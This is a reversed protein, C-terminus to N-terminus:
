KKTLTVDDILLKDAANICIFLQYTDAEKIDFNLTYAEWKKNDITEIKPTGAVNVDNTRSSANEDKKTFSVFRMEGKGKMYLTLSYKGAELDLPFSFFRRNDHERKPEFDIRLAYKGSHADKSQSYLGAEIDNYYAGWRAPMAGNNKWEEMGGNRLEVNQAFVGVASIAFLMALLKKKM